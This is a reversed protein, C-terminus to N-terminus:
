TRMWRWEIGRTEGMGDMSWEEEEEKEEEKGQCYTTAEIVM